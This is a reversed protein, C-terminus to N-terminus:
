KNRAKDKAEMRFVTRVVFVMGMVGGLAAGSVMLWPTTNLWGDLWYGLGLPLLMTLLFQMGIGTYRVYAQMGGQVQQRHRAQDSQGSAASQRLQEADKQLKQYQDPSPPEPRKSEGQDAM